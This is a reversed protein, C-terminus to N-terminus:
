KKMPQVSSPPVVGNMRAYEVMQGFHDNMHVIALIMVGIRTNNGAIPKVPEFMNQGNLTAISLHALAFSDKLAQVLQDKTQPSAMKPMTSPTSTADGFIMANSNIVHKIQDAFTRVGTFNGQTPAFNYKDAPMAEALPVLEHEVDTLLQDVVQAPTVAVATAAPQSATPTSAPTQAQTKAQAHPMAISALCALLVAPALASLTIKM